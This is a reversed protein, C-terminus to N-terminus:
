ESEKLLVFSLCQLKRMKLNYQVEENERELVKM